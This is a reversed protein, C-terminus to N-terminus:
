CRIITVQSEGGGSTPVTYNQPECSRRTEAVPKEGPSPPAVDDSPEHDYYYRPGFLVGRRFPRIFRNAHRHHGPVAHNFSHAGIQHGSGSRAFAEVPGLVSGFALAAVFTTAFIPKIM